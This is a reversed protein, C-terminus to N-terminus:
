VQKGGADTSSPAGKSIGAPCHVVYEVVVVCWEITHINDTTRNKSVTIISLWNRVSKFTDRSTVDYVIIFADARRFYVSTLANHFRAYTTFTPSYLTM